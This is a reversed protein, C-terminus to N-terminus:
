LSNLLDVVKKKNDPFMHGYVREVMEKSHGLRESITFSDIGKNILLSVHSHRFDHLRIMPLKDNHTENYLTIYKRKNNAISNQPIPKTLGYVYSQNSFVDSDKMKNYHEKLENILIKNLYVVRNKGNKSSMTITKNRSDYNSRIIISGEEWNIDDWKRAQLEGLRMGTWYLTDFVLAYYKDDIVSRFKKYQDFTFFQIQKVQKNTHKVYDLYNFPNNQILMKKVGFSLISNLMKQISLTYSNSYNKDIIDQQWKQLLIVNFNYLKIEFFICFQSEIYNEYDYYTRPKVRNKKYDLFLITLDKFTYSSRKEKTAKLLFESEAKKAIRQGDFGRKKYQIIKGFPDRYKGYYYWKGTKSDKKVAM